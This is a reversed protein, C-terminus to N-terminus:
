GQERQAEIRSAADAWAEKAAEISNVNYGVQGWGLYGVDTARRAEDSFVAFAGDPWGVLAADPWKRKVIEESELETM